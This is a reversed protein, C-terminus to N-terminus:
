GTKFQLYVSKIENFLGAQQLEKGTSVNGKVIVALGVPFERELISTSM